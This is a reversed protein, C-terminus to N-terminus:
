RAPPRRGDRRPRHWIGLRERVVRRLFAAPSPLPLPVPGPNGGLDVTLRPRGDVVVDARDIGLVGFIATQEGGAESLEVDFRRPSGKGLLGAIAAMLDAEDNLVDERTTTHQEDPVV